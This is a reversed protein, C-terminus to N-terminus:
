QREESSRPDAGRLLVAFVALLVVAALLPVGVLKLKSPVPLDATAVPTVPVAPKQATVKAATPTAASPTASTTEKVAPVRADQPLPAAAEPSAAAKADTAPKEATAAATAAPEATAGPTTADAAAAKALFSFASLSRAREVTDPDLAELEAIAARGREGPEGPQEAAVLVYSAVPQRIWDDAPSDKFMKVLRPMVDWDEWRTLDPIVQDAFEKHDLALRMSALLQERPIIDTEEGHFRLAMIASHLHKYEVTPNGLFKENVLELGDAGKLKIYCAILADLSEKKRREDAHLSEDILGTGIPVGIAGTIGIAAIIGPKTVQYDYNLFEELLKVDDPQGCIGLMTLYLRRGSPGVTPDQIWKLLRDRHMRPGLALVDAYPSRAFEDYSDQALLPDEDELFEQFFAIRELGSEPLTPLKEVYEVARDSLPVPTTWEIKDPTIAAIGTILFKKGPADEGFYVVDLEKVDGIKEAGRLVKVIRFKATATTPDVSGAALDTAAPMPQVLEAIVAGDAGAIEQGLTAMAASCFPCAAARNLTAAMDTLVMAAALLGIVAVQFKSRITM